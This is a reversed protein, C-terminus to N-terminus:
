KKAMETLFKSLQDTVVEVLSVAKSYAMRTPGLIGISGVVKGNVKCTKTIISCENIGNLDNEEGILIETRESEKARLINKIVDSEELIGLVVKLKEVDQFEPQNLMNLAGGLFVREENSNLFAQEMLEFTLDMLQKHQDMQHSIERLLTFNVQEMNLHYLKKQLFAGLDRLRKPDMPQSLELVHQSIFGSDTIIVVLVRYLSVQILEIRELHGQSRKPLIILSTYNSLQSMLQCTQKVTQDIETLRQTFFRNIIKIQAPVLEEKEMLCDVYFRYGKDSPIRGASTYPQEIYGSEELDSMENRITASSVGLDYKKSITRSGVPEATAIYDKIIAHLVQKKREDV